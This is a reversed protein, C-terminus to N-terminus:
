KPRQNFMKKSAKPIKSQLHTNKGRNTALIAPSIIQAKHKWQNGVDQAQEKMKAIHEYQFNVQLLSMYTITSIIVTQPLIINDSALFIISPIM